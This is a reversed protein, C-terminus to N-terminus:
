ITLKYLEDALEAYLSEAEECDEIIDRIREPVGRQGRFEVFLEVEDDVDYNRAFDIVFDIVEKPDTSDTEIILDQGAHDTWTEFMVYDDFVKVSWGLDEATDVIEDLTIYEDMNKSRLDVM